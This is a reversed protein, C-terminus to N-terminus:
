RKRWKLFEDYNRIYDKEDYPLSAFVLLVNDDTHKYQIGWCGAPLYLGTSPSNLVFEERTVGDDVIVNVSGALSVLFQDCEKHAHEGRVSMSPVNYTYFIRKVSFPVSRELELVNLDGRADSFYPLACLYAGTGSSIRQDSVAKESHISVAKANVYGIVRAPNGVVIAYPPVNKTVVAGAGVMAYAGIRVPLITANAGVSAGEAIETREFVDPWEKSRPFKDNVFSVSPGIFVRDKIRVGNWLSVGCKLTVDDGIEVDDEIFCNACINCRAGIKAGGLIVVNQWVKTEDGICKTYVAASQHIM